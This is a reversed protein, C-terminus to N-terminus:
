FEFHTKNKKMSVRCREQNVDYLLRDVRTPSDPLRPTYSFNYNINAVNHRIQVLLELNKRKEVLLELTRTCQMIAVNLNTNPLSSFFLFLLLLYILISLKFNM